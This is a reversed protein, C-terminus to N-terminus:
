PVVPPGHMLCVFADVFLLHWHIGYGSHGSSCIWTTHDLSVELDPISLELSEQYM